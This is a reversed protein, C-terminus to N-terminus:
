PLIGVNSPDSAPVIAAPVAFQDVNTVMSQVIRGWESGLAITLVAYALALYVVSLPEIRDLFSRRLTLLAM